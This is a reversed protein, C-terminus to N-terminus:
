KEIKKLLKGNFSIFKIIALVSIDYLKDSVAYVKNNLTFIAVDPFLRKAM